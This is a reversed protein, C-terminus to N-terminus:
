NFQCDWLSEPEHGLNLDDPYDNLYLIYHIDEHKWLYEFNAYATEIGIVPPDYTACVIGTAGNGCFGDLDDMIVVNPRTTTAYGICVQAEMYWTDIDPLPPIPNGNTQIKIGDPTIVDYIFEGPSELSDPPEVEGSQNQPQPSCSCLVAVSLCLLMIKSSTGM